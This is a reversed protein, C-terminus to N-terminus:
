PAPPKNDAEPSVGDAPEWDDDDMFIFILETQEMGSDYLKVWPGVSGLLNGADDRYLELEISKSAEWSARRLRAIGRSAAQGLTMTSREERAAANGPARRGVPIMGGSVRSSGFRSM